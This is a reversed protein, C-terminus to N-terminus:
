RAFTFSLKWDYTFLNYSGGSYELSIPSPPRGLLHVLTSPQETALPVLKHPRARTPSGIPCAAYPNDNQNRWVQRVQPSTPISTETSHRRIFPPASLLHELLCPPAQRPRCMPLCSLGPSASAPASPRITRAALACLTPSCWPQPPKPAQCADPDWPCVQFLLPESYTDGGLLPLQLVLRFSVTLLQLSLSEGNPSTRNSTQKALCYGPQPAMNPSLGLCHKALIQCTLDLLLSCPARVRLWSRDSGTPMGSLLFLRTRWAPHLGSAGFTQPSSAACIQMGALPRIGSSSLFLQSDHVLLLGRWLCVPLGRAQRVLRRLAASVLM